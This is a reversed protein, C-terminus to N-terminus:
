ERRMRYQNMLVPIAAGAASAEIRFMAALWNAIESFGTVDVTAAEDGGKYWCDFNTASTQVRITDKADGLYFSVILNKSAPITFIATDSYELTGAPIDKYADGGFLLQTPTSEFDYEDGTSAGVGIFAKTIYLNEANGAKFGVRTLPLGTNSILAAKILQRVTTGIWGADDGSGTIPTIVDLWSM